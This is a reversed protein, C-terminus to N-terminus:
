AGAIEKLKSARALRSSGPREPRRTRTAMAVASAGRRDVERGRPYPRGGPLSMQPLSPQASGGTLAESTRRGSDDRARRPVWSPSRSRVRHVSRARRAMPASEHGVVVRLVAGEEVVGRQAAAQRASAPRHASRSPRLKPGVPAPAGGLRPGALRQELGGTARARGRGLRGVGGGCACAAAARRAGHSPRGHAARRAPAAARRRKTDFSQFAHRFALSGNSRSGSAPSHLLALERGAQAM